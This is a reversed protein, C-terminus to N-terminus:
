IMGSTKKVVYCLAAIKSWLIGGVNVVEKVANHTKSMILYKDDM